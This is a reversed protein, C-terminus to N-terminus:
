RPVSRAKQARDGNHYWAFSYSAMVIEVWWRVVVLLGEGWCVGFQRAHVGM